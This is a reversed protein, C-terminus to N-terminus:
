SVKELIVADIDFTATVGSQAIAIAQLVISTAGSELTIRPHTLVLTESDLGSGDQTTDGAPRNVQYQPITAGAPNVNFQVQVQSGGSVSSLRCVLIARVVDGASLNEVRTWTVTGDTTTAGITTNWTPESAGANGATTCIYSDGATSRIRTGVTKAGTSWATNLAISTQLGAYDNNATATMAIRALSGAGRSRAVKSRTLTPSGSVLATWNPTPSGASDGGMRGNFVHNASPASYRTLWNNPFWAKFRDLNYKAVLMVGAANLHGGSDYSADTGTSIAGSEDFTLAGRYDVFFWNNARAVSRLWSDVQHAVYKRQQTFTAMPVLGAIILRKGATKLTDIIGQVSAQVQAFTYGQNVDNIPAGLYVLDATSAAAAAVYGNEVWQDTRTGALASAGIIELPGGGIMNLTPLLGRALLHVINVSGSSAYANAVYSDGCMYVTQPAAQVAVSGSGTGPSLDADGIKKVVGDVIYTTDPQYRGGLGDFEAQTMTVFKADFQRM